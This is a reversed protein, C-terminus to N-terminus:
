PTRLYSGDPQRVFTITQSGPTHFTVAHVEPAAALDAAIQAMAATVNQDVTAGGYPLHIHLTGGGAVAAYPVTLQGHRVKKRVASAIDGAGPERSAPAAVPQYQGGAGTRTMIEVREQRISGDPARIEVVMDPSRQSASSPVLTIRVVDARDHYHEITRLEAAAARTLTPVYQGPRRAVSRGGSGARNFIEDLADQSGASADLKPHSALFRMAPTGASVPAPAPAPAAAPASPAVGAAPDPAVPADPTLEDDVVIDSEVADADGIAAGGIDADGVEASTISTAAPAANYLGQGATGIGLRVRLALSRALGLTRSTSAGSAPAAGAVGVEDIEAEDAANAASPGPGTGGLELGLGLPTLDGALDGVDSPRFGEGRIRSIDAGLGAGTLLAGGYLAASSGHVFTVYGAGQSALSLLSPAEVTLEAGGVAAGAMEDGGGLPALEGLSAGGTFAATGIVFAVEGLVVGAEADLVGQRFGELELSRESPLTDVVDALERQFADDSSLTVSEGPKLSEFHEIWRDPFRSSGNALRLGLRAVALSIQDGSMTPHTGSVLLWMLQRQGEESTASMDDRKTFTVGNPAHSAPSPGRAPSVPRPAAAARTRGSSVAPVSADALPALQQWRATSAPDFLPLEAVSKPRQPNWPVPSRGYPSVYLLAGDSDRPARAAFEVLQERVKLLGRAIYGARSDSTDAADIEAAHKLAWDILLPADDDGAFVIPTTAALPDLSALAQRRAREIRADAASRAAPAPASVSATSVPAPADTDRAIDAQSRTVIPM